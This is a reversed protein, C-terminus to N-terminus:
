REPSGRQHGTRATAYRPRTYIDGQRGRWFQASWAARDKRGCYREAIGGQVEERQAATLEYVVTGDYPTVTDARRRTM